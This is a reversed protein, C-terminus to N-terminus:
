PFKSKDIVKSTTMAAMANRTPQIFIVMKSNIRWNQKWYEKYFQQVIIFLYMEYANQSSKTNIEM